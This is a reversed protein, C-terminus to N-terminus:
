TITAVSPCTTWAARGDADVDAAFGSQAVSAATSITNPTFANTLGPTLTLCDVLAVMMVATEAPM